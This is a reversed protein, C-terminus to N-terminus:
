NNGGGSVESAPLPGDSVVDSEHGLADRAQVHLYQGEATTTAMVTSGYADGSAFSHSASRNIAFRYNCDDDDGCNWNWVGNDRNLVVGPATTDLSYTLPAPSCPSTNGGSEATFYFRHVGDDLGSLTVSPSSETADTGERLTCERDSYLAVTEDSAMGSVVISPSDDDTHTARNEGLSLGVKQLECGVGSTCTHGYQFEGAGFSDFTNPDGDSKDLLAARPNNVNHHGNGIQGKLGYGWCYIQGRWTRACTHASGIAIQIARRSTTAPVPYPKTGHQVIGDGLRGNGQQGWCLVEGTASLACAHNKGVTIQAMGSLSSGPINNRNRVTVPFFRVYNGHDGTGEGLQGDQGSGWCQVGGDTLLVCTTNHYSSVQVVNGLPTDNDSSTHVPVAFDRQPIRGSGLQGSGGQGWCWVQDSDLRGCGHDSGTTLQVFKSIPRSYEDKIIQGRIAPDTEQSHGLGWCWVQGNTRLACTQGDGGSVQVFGALANGERDVVKVARNRQSKSDDGLQGQSNYGWCWIQGNSELACTHTHGASVQVIGDLPPHGSESSRVTQPSNQDDTNGIGLQGYYGNGWCRVQGSELACSHDEGLSISKLATSRTYVPPTGKVIETWVVDSTNGAADTQQVMVGYSANDPFPTLDLLMLWSGGLCNTFFELPIPADVIAVTLPNQGDCSGELRHGAQGTPTVTTISVLPITTDVNLGSVAIPISFISETMENGASDKIKGSTGTALATIEVTGDHGDAVSYSFDQTPALVGSEGSPSATATSGDSLALSLPLDGPTILVEESFTVAITVTERARYDGSASASVLTPRVGDVRAERPSIAPLLADSDFANGSGDSISQGTPVTIKAGSVLAIGDDDRDSNAVTYTFTLDGGSGSDYNATKTASGVQLQMSPTGDSVSVAESLEVIVKVTDGIGYIGDIARVRSVTPATTDSGAITITSTSQTINGARDMAELHLYNTGPPLTAPQAASTTAAFSEGPAFFQSPRQNFAYRYSCPSSDDTCNWSWTGSSETPTPVTPATTDVTLGVVSIATGLTTEPVANQAADAIEATDDPIVRTIEVTGDQGEEVRYSFPHILSIGGGGTAIAQAIEGDSLTLELRPQGHLSVEESFTISITATERAKYLGSASASLLSPRNTDVRAVGTIAPLAVANDYSNNNYDVIGATHLNEIVAGSALAVGDDDRDGPSIDYSFSMENGDTGTYSANKNSNGIQLVLWPTRESTGGLLYVEENFELKVIISSDLGYSSDQIAMRQVTPPTNDQPSFQFRHSLIPSSNNRAADQAQIHLYYDVGSSLDDPQEASSNPAFHDTSAFNYSSSQNFAYRYHCPTSRDICDWSWTNVLVSPTTVSPPTTDVFVGPLNRTTYSSLDLQNGAEDAIVVGSPLHLGLADVGDEDNESAQILYEGSRTDGSGTLLNGFVTTGGIDLRIQPTGGTVEVLESFNVVLPLTDMAKYRGDTGSVTTITPRIGDVRLLNLDNLILDSPQAAVDAGGAIRGGNLDIQANGLEIGDGDQDNIAVQYRFTITPSDTGEAYEAYVIGSDLTLALRPTGDVTVNETFYVVFDLENGIGYTGAGPPIARDIAAVTNDVYAYFHFIASENGAADKAQLHLYYKGDGTNLTATAVDRYSGSLTALTEQRDITFRYTCDKGSTDDCGWNWTKSTRIQDDNAVGTMGPATNDIVLNEVSLPRQISAVADSGTDQITGTFRTVQVEDDDGGQVQYTFEHSISAGANGSFTAETSGAENVALQLTAGSAVTVDESFIATLIARTGSKYYSDAPASVSLLSAAIANIQVGSLDPFTLVTGLEMPNGAADEITGNGNADIMSGITIGGTTDMDGIAVQYTFVVRTGSSRGPDYIAYKLTGEFDLHLRPHGKVAVNESLTVTFRLLDRTDFPGNGDSYGVNGVVTPVQTDRVTSAVIQEAANGLDDSHDVTIIVEGDPLDGPLAAEWTGSSCPPQTALPNDNVTM